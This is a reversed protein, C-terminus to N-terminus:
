VNFHRAFAVDTLCARAVEVTPYCSIFDFHSNLGIMVVGNDRVSVDQFRSALAMVEEATMAVNRGDSFSQNYRSRLACGSVLAAIKKLSNRRITTSM